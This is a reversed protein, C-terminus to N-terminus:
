VLIRMLCIHLFMSSVNLCCYFIHYGKWLFSIYNHASRWKRSNLPTPPLLPQPILYQLRWCLFITVLYILICGQQSMSNFYPLSASFKFHSKNRVYGLYWIWMLTFNYYLFLGIRHNNKWKKIYMTQNM